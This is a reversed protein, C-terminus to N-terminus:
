EQTDEQMHKAAAVIGQLMAHIVKNMLRYMLYATFLSAGLSFLIEHKIFLAVSLMYWMVVTHCDVFLFFKTTKDM